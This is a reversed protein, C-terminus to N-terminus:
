LCTAKLIFSFVQTFSTCNACTCVCVCVCVFPSVGGGGRQGRMDIEEDESWTDQHVGCRYQVTDM